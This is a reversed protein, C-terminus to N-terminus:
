KSITDSGPVLDLFLIIYICTKITTPPLTGAIRAFSVHTLPAVLILMSHDLVARKLVLIEGEGFRAEDSGASAAIHTRRQQRRSPSCLVVSNMVLLDGQGVAAAAGVNGYGAMVGPPPLSEM